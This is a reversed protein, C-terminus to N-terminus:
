FADPEGEGVYRFYPYLSINTDRLLASVAEFHIYQEHIDPRRGRRLVSLVEVTPEGDLDLMRSARARVVWEPHEMGDIVTRAREVDDM